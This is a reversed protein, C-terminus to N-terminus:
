ADTVNVVRRVLMNSDRKFFRDGRADEIDSGRGRPRLRSAVISKVGNSLNPADIGHM